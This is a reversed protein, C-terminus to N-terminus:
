GKMPLVNWDIKIEAGADAFLRGVPCRDESLAKLRDLRKESEDTEIDIVLGAGVFQMVGNANGEIGDVLDTTAEAHINIAGHNFRMAEAVKVIQVTQCAALSATLTALPAAATDTGGREAPEDTVILHKGATIEIRVGETCTSDVERTRRGVVEKQKVDVM